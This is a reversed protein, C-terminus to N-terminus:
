NEKLPLCVLDTDILKNSKGFLFESADFIKYNEPLLAYIKKYMNINPRAEILIIPFFKNLIKKSGALVKLEYGEVDIKLVIRNINKLNIIKEYLLEDLNSCSVTERDWNNKVENNNSTFSGGSNFPNEFLTINEPCDYSGIATNFVNIKNSLGLDFVQKKCNETRKPSADVSFIRKFYPSSLFTYYGVHCGIDIFIDGGSRLIPPLPDIAFHMIKTLNAYDLINMKLNNGEVNIKRIIEKKIGKRSIIILILKALKTNIFKKSDFIRKYIFISFYEPVLKGINILAERKVHRLYKQM